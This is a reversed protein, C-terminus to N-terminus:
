TLAGPNCPFVPFVNRKVCGPRPAVSHHLRAISARHEEQSHRELRPPHPQSSEGDRCACERSPLKKRPRDHSAPRLIALAASDM